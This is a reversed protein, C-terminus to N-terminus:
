GDSVFRLLHTCCAHVDPSQSTVTSECNRHKWFDILRSNRRDRSLATFATPATLVLPTRTALSLSSLIVFRVSQVRSQTCSPAESDSMWAEWNARSPGDHRLMSWSSKASSWWRSVFGECEAVRRDFGAKSAQRQRLWGQQEALERKMCRSLGLCSDGGARKVKRCAWDAMWSTRRPPKWCQKTGCLSSAAVTQRSPKAPPTEEM